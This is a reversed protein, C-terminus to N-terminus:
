LEMGAIDDMADFDFDMEQLMSDVEADTMSLLPVGGALDQQNLVPSVQVLDEEDEDGRLCPLNERVHAKFKGLLVPDEAATTQSHLVERGKRMIDQDSPMSGEHTAAHEKVFGILGQELERSCFVTAPKCGPNRLTDMYINTANGGDQNAVGVDMKDLYSKPYAYPPAFGSGGQELAWQKGIPLGPGTEKALGLDRKFRELWEANDAATQNWPDDSFFRM